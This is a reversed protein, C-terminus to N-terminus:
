KAGRVSCGLWALGNPKPQYQWKTPYGVARVEVGGGVRVKEAPEIRSIDGSGVEFIVCGLEEAKKTMKHKIEDFRLAM